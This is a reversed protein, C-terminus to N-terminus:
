FTELSKSRGRNRVMGTLMVYPRHLGHPVWLSSRWTSSIGREFGSKNGLKM